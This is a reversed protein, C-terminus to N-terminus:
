ISGRRDLRAPRDRRDVGQDVVQALAQALSFELRHLQPALDAVEPHLQRGGLGLRDGLFGEQHLQALLQRPV